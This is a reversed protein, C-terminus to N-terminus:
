FFSGQFGSQTQKSDKEEFFLVLKNLCLPFEADSGFPPPLPSPPAVLSLETQAQLSSCRGAIKSNCSLVITLRTSYCIGATRLVQSISEAVLGALSLQAM